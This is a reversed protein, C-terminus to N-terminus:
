VWDRGPHCARHRESFVKHPM